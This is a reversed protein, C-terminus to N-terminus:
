GFTLEPISVKSFELIELTVISGDAFRFTVSHTVAEDGLERRGQQDKM